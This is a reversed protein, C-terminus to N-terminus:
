IILDEVPNRKKGNRCETETEADYEYNKGYRDKASNLNKEEM